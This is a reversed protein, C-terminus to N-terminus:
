PQLIDWKPRRWSDRLVEESREVAQGLEENGDFFLVFELEAETTGFEEDFKRIIDNPPLVQRGSTTVLEFEVGPNEETPEVSKYVLESCVIADDTVFDFNYDYPKGFHSFARMLSDLKQAKTQSTRLAAFYDAHASHELSSVVVGEGIAEIVRPVEGGQV